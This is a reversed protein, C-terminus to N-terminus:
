LLGVIFKAVMYGILITGITLTSLLTIAVIPAFIGSYGTIQKITMVTWYFTSNAQYLVEETIEEVGAQAYQILFQFVAGAWGLAWLVVYEILSGIWEPIQTINPISINFGEYTNFFWFGWKFPITPFSPVSATYLSSTPFSPFSVM